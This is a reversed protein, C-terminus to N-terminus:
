IVCPDSIIGSHEKVFASKRLKYGRNRGWLRLNSGSTFQEGVRWQPATHAPAPTSQLGAGKVQVTKSGM